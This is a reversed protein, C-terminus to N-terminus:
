NAFVDSSCGVCQDGDAVSDGARALLKNEVFVDPSGSTIVRQVDVFHTTRGKTHTAFSGGVVGVLIGDAYVSSQGANVLATAPWPDAPNEAVGSSLDGLRVVGPM